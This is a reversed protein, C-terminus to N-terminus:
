GQEAGNATTPVITTWGIETPTPKRRPRRDAAPRGPSWRRVPHQESAAPRAEDGRPLDGIPSCRQASSSVQRQARHADDVPGLPDDGGGRAHRQQHIPRRSSADLAPDVAPVWWQTLHDAAQTPQRTMGAIFISTRTSMCCPSVPPEATAAILLDPISALHHRRVRGAPTARRSRRGEIAAGPVGDADTLTPPRANDARADAGSRASFGVELRTVTSVRVLGRGIRSAWDEVDPSAGLRVLASKDILWSTTM